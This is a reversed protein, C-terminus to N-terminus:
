EGDFLGGVEAAAVGAGNAMPATAPPDPLSVLRETDPQDVDILEDLEGARPPPPERV